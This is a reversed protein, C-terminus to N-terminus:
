AENGIEKQVERVQKLLRKLKKEPDPKRGRGRQAYRFEKCCLRVNDRSCGFHKAVEKWTMRPNALVFDAIVKHRARTDAKKKQLYTSM